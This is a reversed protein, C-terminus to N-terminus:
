HSLAAPHDQIGLGISYDIALYKDLHTLSLQLNEEKNQEPVPLDRYFEFKIHVLGDLVRQSIVRIRDCGKTDILIRGDPLTEHNTIQVITGIEAIPSGPSGSSFLGFRRSGSNVARRIMGRLQPEFIYLPCPMGPYALCCSMVPLEVGPDM